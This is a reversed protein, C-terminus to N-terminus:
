GLLSEDDFDGMLMRQGGRQRARLSAQTRKALESQESQMQQEQRALQERQQAMQREAAAASERAASKGGGLISSM